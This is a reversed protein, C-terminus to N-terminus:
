RIGSKPPAAARCTILWADYVPHQLPNLGPSSAYMWGRFSQRAPPTPKGPAARPQSDVIMYVMSDEMAEDGASRECAKVTFILTKYRVPKGVAAEFRVSEATVKDLAQIVAVDYRARKAPVEPAKTTTAPAEPVAPKPAPAEAPVETSAADTPGPSSMVAPAAPAGAAPGPVAVTQAQTLGAVALGAVVAAGFGWFNSIRM